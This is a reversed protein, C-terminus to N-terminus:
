QGANDAVAVRAEAAARQAEDLQRRVEQLQQQAQKAQEAASQAGAVSVATTEALGCGCLMLAAAIAASIWPIPRSVVLARTATM